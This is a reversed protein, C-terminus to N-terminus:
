SRYIKEYLEQMKEKKKEYERYRDLRPRFEEIKDTGRIAHYAEEVSSYVGMETLATMLAGLATSESDEMHYLTIGYIDAQMQNMVRSNTMGGSIYARKISCYKEFEQLNNAIELFIGEVLSQLIEPRTHKLAIGEFVAKSDPNWDPTSRGQFYPLMLIEGVREMSSMELEHNIRTYDIQGDTWDYFTRCFWDFASCCTLVNAEIIYKDKVAACNCIINESMQEPVQELTTVLFGGTGTVVSVTGTDFAGQGVAACQQDGGASIVPIGKTIGSKASFAETVWGVTSGPQLLRCLQEEKVGFIELLEAEWEKEKLNMLGTRSGYTYDTFFRGTMKYMIYEPINLFKYVKRNVDPCNEKIWTMRSGSFVTNVKAGSKETIIRNYKELRSCIQSNRTDQWMITDMLPNGNIDVPIVSSRQATVAVADIVKNKREAMDKIKRCIEEAYKEWQGSPQEVWGCARKVPEYKLQVFALNQGAEDYLIGRISSTGIDIILINM